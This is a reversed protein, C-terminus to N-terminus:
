HKNEKLYNFLLESFGFGGALEKSVAENYMSNYIDSGAQKPYLSDERKIATDLIIKLFIAEFEDTKEKLAKDEANLTSISDLKNKEGIALISSTDLSLM